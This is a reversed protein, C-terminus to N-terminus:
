LSPVVAVAYVNAMGVAAWHHSESSQASIIVTTPMVGLPLASVSASLGYQLIYM